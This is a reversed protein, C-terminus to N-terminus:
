KTPALFHTKIFPSMYGNQTPQLEKKWDLLSQTKGEKAVEVFHAKQSVSEVPVAMYVEVTDRQGDTDFFLEGTHEASSLSKAVLTAPTKALKEDFDSNNQKNYAQKQSNTVLFGVAALAVLAGICVKESLFDRKQGDYYSM